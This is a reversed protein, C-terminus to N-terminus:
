RQDGTQDHQGEEQILGLNFSNQHSVFYKQVSNVALLDVLPHIQLERERELVKRQRSWRSEVLLSEQRGDDPVNTLAQPCKKNNCACPVMLMQHTSALSAAFCLGTCLFAKAWSTPLAM